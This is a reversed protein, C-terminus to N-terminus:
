GGAPELPKELCSFSWGHHSREGCEVYGRRHYFERLPRNDRLADLRVARCGRERALREIRLTCWRGIGAGQREPAVALRNLYLAPEPAQWRVDADPVVARMGLTFTAVLDAGDYVAHVERAGIDARFQELTVPPPDWNAFGRTRHLHRGCRALLEHLREADAPGARIARLSSM